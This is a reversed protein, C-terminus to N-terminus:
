GALQNLTETFLDFLSRLRAVDRIVGQAEFYLADKRIMLRIRPQDQILQRIRANSLMMRVKAENNSQVIFDHDFDAVGIEIDKMGLAKDLKGVLGERFLTFQFGDRNELPARLRTYTTNSDGSPVSYTDLTLTWQKIHAIVQSKRFLGGQMFDAGLDTAVQRWATDQGRKSLVV